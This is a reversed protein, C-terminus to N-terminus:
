VSAPDFDGDEVEAGDQEEDDANAEISAIERSCLSIQRHLAALAPGTMNSVDAVM